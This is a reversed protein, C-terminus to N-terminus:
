WQVGPYMSPIRFARYASQGSTQMQWVIQPPTTKTVEYIASSDGAPTTATVDFEVNGNKLLRSSGAYYSFVPALADAWVIRATRAAENLEMLVVRSECPTTGCVEGGSNLVRKNGNDFLLVHFVGSSNASVINVDHQAYFWDQPDTGGQLFFDGQYGLKWLVDGAGLGDSYDIKVVWGQHRISVILAKDDPSYIVTNSHTWDEIGMLHRNVDLHDFSSWVWVPKRNEDLDILVDGAIWRPGSSDAVSTFYKYAAALVILHGNPLIAFDHHTWGIEINCGACTASALAENLQASTMQWMVQGTLDVEQLISDRGVFSILFHGNPMMKIPYASYNTSFEPRYAWLINADLDTVVSLSQTGDFAMLNVLELGRQPTLGASTTATIGPPNQIVLQGTKFIHDSDHLESGDDFKLVARMHYTHDQLMGAVLINVSGTEPSPRQEWTSLEYRTDLGFEISV